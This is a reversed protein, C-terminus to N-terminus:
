RIAIKTEEFIRVGEINRVGRRIADRILSEDVKKFEDPVAKPDVIEFSWVKCIGKVRANEIEKSKTKFEQEALFRNREETARQQELEFTDVVGFVDEMAQKEKQILEEQARLAKEKELREKELREREKIRDQELKKEWAILEKKLHAEAQDLPELIKKCYENIKKVQDNLPGVLEKRRTEVAKQFHKIKRAAELSSNQIERSEIKVRFIPDVFLAIDAKLEDFQALEKM